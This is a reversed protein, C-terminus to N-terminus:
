GGNPLSMCNTQKKEIRFQLLSPSLATAPLSATAPPLVPAGAPPPPGVPPGEQVQELETEM